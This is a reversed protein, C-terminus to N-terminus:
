ASKRGQELPVVNDPSPPPPEVLALFADTIQQMPERLEEVDTSIYGQTTDGVDLKHNVLLKVDVIHLKLKRSAVSIFTRRLDHVTHGTKDKAKPDELHGSKGVGPFVWPSGMAEAKRRRLLQVLYDSLPLEFARGGKPNPVSLVKRDWDIQEFRMTLTATRRMGTILAVTLFDRSTQGGKKKVDAWWKPLDEAKVATRPPELKHLTVNIFPNAPLEPHQRLARNYIRSFVGLAGNATSFGYTEDRKRGKAYKGAQVEATIAKHRREADARSIQALPRDLWAALYKTVGYETYQITRPSAKRTKLTAMYLALAERLTIGGRGTSHYPDIGQDMLALWRMAKKRVEELPEGGYVAVKRRWSAGNVRKQVIFSKNGDETVKLGFGKVDWHIGPGAKACSRETLGKRKSEGM